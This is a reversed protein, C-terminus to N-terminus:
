TLSAILEAIDNAVPSSYCMEMNTVPHLFTVLTAHLAQRPLSKALAPADKPLRKLGYAPDGVLPHGIHAMHVRIQHTRGTELRCEIVSVTKYSKLTRYHTVAARGGHSVLAMRKRDNPSRGINGEIRGTLPMPKGWVVATYIRKLTRSQLQASLAVHARDTKAVVMLGSTDKDLRHVIGPRRVGGIGSLQDGCYALLANVLTGDPNGAGPHVVLGAPKDIVLMEEDEFVITLPIDQPQPIAAVPPPIEIVIHQGPKAKASADSIPAGDRTVRGEALMAQIRVRSLDPVAAALARDLRQGAAAEDLTVEIRRSLSPEEIEDDTDEEVLEGGGLGGGDLPLAKM